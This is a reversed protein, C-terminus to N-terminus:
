SRPGGPGPLGYVRCATGALVSEQESPTLTGVLERATEVTRSYSGARLSVPWDSGFMLREAGFRSLLHDVYPELESRNWTTLDALTTLGSMKCFANPLQSIRAICEAWRRSEASSWGSTVPPKGAHDVVFTTSPHAAVVAHATALHDPGLLLDFALSRAGLLAFGPGEGVRALWGAPDAEALAQHRVGALHAGSPHSLMAELRPELDHGLLDLWPVVASFPREAGIWLLDESEEPDNLVQVLVASSVGASLVEAGLEAPQYDRELVAMSRPDIWPQPRRALDWVHVHADVVSPPAAASDM